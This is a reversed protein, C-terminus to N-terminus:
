SAKTIVLESMDIKNQLVDIFQQVTKVNYGMTKALAILTVSVDEPTLGTKVSIADIVATEGNLLEEKLIQGIQGSQILADKEEETLSDWILILKSFLFPLAKEAIKKISM